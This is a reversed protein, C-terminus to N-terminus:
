HHLWCRTKVKCLMTFFFVDALTSSRVHEVFCKAILTDCANKTNPFDNFNNPRLFACFHNYINQKMHKPDQVPKHSEKCSNPAIKAHVKPQQNTKDKTPNGETIPDDDIMWALQTEQLSSSLYIMEEVAEENWILSQAQDSWEGSAALPYDEVAVKIWGRM